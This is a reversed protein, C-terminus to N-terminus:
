EGLIELLQAKNVVEQDIFRTSELLLPLLVQDTYVCGTASPELQKQKNAQHPLHGLGQKHFELMAQYASSWATTEPFNKRLTRLINLGEFDLDGWFYCVVPRTNVQYWWNQFETVANPSVLNIYLFQSQGLERILNATGRYGASYIVATNHRKSTQKLASVLTLFSDFNEVFIATELSEPAYASMMITRDRVVKVANPFVDYILNRRKDLFKSDGWFCRASLGRISIEHQRKYFRDILEGAAHFSSIIREASFGDVQIKQALSSAKFLPYQDIAAQWQAAYSAVKPRKLWARVLDEQQRNFRLIAHDYKQQTATNRKYQIHEIVAYERFLTQEVLSWLLEHNDDSFDFLEHWKGPTVKESFRVASPRDCLDIFRNLLRRIFLNDTVWYPTTPHPTPGQDNM